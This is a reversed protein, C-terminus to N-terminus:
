DAPRRMGDDLRPRLVEETVGYKQMMDKLMEAKSRRRRRPVKLVGRVFGRKAYEEQQAPTKAFVERVGDTMKVWGSGEWRPHKGGIEWGEKVFDKVEERMVYRNVGDKHICVKGSSPSKHYTGKNAISIKKNHEATRYMGRVLGLEKIKPDGERLYYQKHNKEDKYWHMGFAPNRDGSFRERYSSYDRRFNRQRAEERLSDQQAKPLLSWIDGASGGTAINYFRPDRHADYFAIWYRERDNLREASECYEITIRRFNERGYKKIANLLRNGSGLYVADRRRVKMKHQGIYRDGTVLNITMYVFGYESAM